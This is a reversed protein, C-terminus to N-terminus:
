PKELLWTSTIFLSLALSSIGEFQPTPSSEQSDKPYCPSWVLWNLPFWGQINVSLTSALTSARLSQGGSAFLHSMLFSGSAPFSQSWSSFPTASSSITLHFWQSLPCSDSCVRLSLSPCPLRSPQLGHPWLSDSVVSYGFLLYYHKTLDAHYMRCEWGQGQPEQRDTNCWGYIALFGLLM